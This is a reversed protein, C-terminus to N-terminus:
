SDGKAIVAPTNKPKQFPDSSASTAMLMPDKILKIKARRQSPWPEMCLTKHSLGDPSAEETSFGAPALDHPLLELLSLEDLLLDRPRWSKRIRAKLVLEIRKSVLSLM